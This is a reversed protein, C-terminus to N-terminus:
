PKRVQEVIAEIDFAVPECQGVVQAEAEALSTDKFGAGSLICVIREGARIHGQALLEALAAPPAASVPEVWLGEELALRRQMAFVAEDRVGAV